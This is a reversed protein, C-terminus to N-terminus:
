AVGQSRELTIIPIDFGRGNDEQDSIPRAFTDFQGEDNYLAALFRKYNEGVKHRVVKQTSIMEGKALQLEEPLIVFRKIKRDDPHPAIIEMVQDRILQVVEPKTTLDRYNTYTIQNKEAWRGVSNRHITVMATLYPRGEGFVVVEQLYSSKRLETEIESSAIADTSDLALKEDMRGAIKWEGDALVTGYDGTSFSETAKEGLYGAFVQLGEAQIEGRSTIGMSLGPLPKGVGVTTLEEDRQITAYGTTEVTGYTQKVNVGLGQFFAYADENLKGGTVYARKLRALGLHDRIASFMFLDGFYYSLRSSFSVSRNSLKLWANKERTPKTLKYMKKKVRTSDNIRVQFRTRINEFTRPPAQIIHPGIERLDNLVTSPEEPFNITLGRTLSLGVAMVQECIWALSLFSLYDDEPQILDVENISTATQIINTHTFTAAKPEGTVGSTFSILALDMPKRQKICEEFYAPDESALNGGRFHLDRIDFLKSHSYTRLGKENYYIIAEINPFLDIIELLKDVQEQDEVVLLRPESVQLYHVLQPVAADQYIGIPIAGLSQAALEAILWQPRNDGIIGVRDNPHIRFQDKLGLSLAEVAKYYERWTWEKWIGLNKQRFAVRTGQKEAKELLLHPLTRQTM